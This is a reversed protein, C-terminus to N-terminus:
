NPRCLNEICCAYQLSNRLQIYLCSLDQLNIGTYSRQAGLAADKEDYAAFEHKYNYRLLKPGEKEDEGLMSIAKKKKRKEAYNVDRVGM